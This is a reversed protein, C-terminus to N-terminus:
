ETLHCPHACVLLLHDSGYDFYDSSSLSFHSLFLFFNYCIACELTPGIWLQTCSSILLDAVCHLFGRWSTGFNALIELTLGVVPLQRKLGGLRKICLMLRRVALMMLGMAAIVVLARYLIWGASEWMNRWPNSESGVIDHDWVVMAVCMGGSTLSVIVEERSEEQLIGFLKEGVWNDVEVLPIVLGARSGGGWYYTHYGRVSFAIEIVGAAGAEQLARLTTEQQCNFNDEVDYLVMKGTLNKTGFVQEIVEQRCLRLAENQWVSGDPFRPTILAGTVNHFRDLGAYLRSMSMSDCITRWPSSSSQPPILAM